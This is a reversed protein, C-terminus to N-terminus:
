KLLIIKKNSIIKNDSLLVAFYIGASLDNANYNLIYNGELKNGNMLTAIKKGSIDYLFLKIEGSKKLSIEFNIESNFPNPYATFKFAPLIEGEGSIYITGSTYKLVCGNDGVAWGTREDPFCVSYVATSDPTNSEIWTEGANATHLFKQSFGSSIWGDTSTRFSVSYGIGFYGTFNYKWHIGRDTSTTISVGFEYDGGSIIITNYDPFSISNLPESGISYVSWYEGGDTTKWIVGCMDYYGGAAFGTNADIFNLTRVPFNAIFLSDMRVNNWITGGNTTKKIIKSQSYACGIFGTNQNLFYITGPLTTTDSYLNQTWNNGANTTSLILPSTYSNYNRWIIAWGTLNNIFYIDKIYDRYNKYQLTWNEGGDSTHYIVASDGIIWGHLSDTFIVKYLNEPFIYNQKVWQNRANLLFPTFILCVILIATKESM